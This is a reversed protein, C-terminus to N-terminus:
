VNESKRIEIFPVIVEDLTLGGHTVVTENFTTFAQRGQPILAVLQDPLLGDREWIITDPFSIQVRQAARRDKYLRARKGRTIATLGESPQGMGRGECHGHDSTIFITFGRGLLEDMLAELRASTYREQSAPELWLRLSSQIDAEGLVSGHLVDDITRDILCLAQLRHSSIEAPPDSRDLALSLGVIANDPLGERGWFARWGQAEDQPAGPTSLDSPRLGSALALRSIATITPIQALLLREDFHWQTHRKRWASAILGWDALSLGDLILLATKEIAGQSRLYALYYPVHYVHHPSPLRQAGLPAYRHRLWTVFAEDLSAQLLDHQKQQSPTSQFDVSHWIVGLEAWTRAIAQWTEWRADSTLNTLDALLMAHLDDVRAPRPDEHTICIAPAAWGPLKEPEAVQLPTLSGNRVLRPLTDQIAADNAFPILIPINYESVAERIELRIYAEWQNQLFDTFAQRSQLIKSLPWAAYTSLSQLRTILTALLADPLPLMGQRHLEDLRSIFGAPYRLTEPFFGFVQQLLFDITGRTGLRAEPQPAGWLYARQLQSLSRLIPYALNPFYSHLDLCVHHGQQWIDYPLTELTAPTIIIVAAKPTFPCVQEVRHRLLVPDTEQLITFGRDILVALLAEDALLGDPDSVLTLSHTHVPFFNLIEELM